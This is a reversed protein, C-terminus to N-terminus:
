LKEELDPQPKAPAASRGWDRHFDEEATPSQETPRELADAIRELALRIKHIENPDLSM